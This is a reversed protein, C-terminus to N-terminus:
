GRVSENTENREKSERDIKLPDTKHTGFQVDRIEGWEFRLSKEADLSNGPARYLLTIGKDDGEVLRGLYEDGNNLILRTRDNSRKGKLSIIGIFKRQIKYAGYPTQILIYSKKIRWIRGSLRDGNKLKLVDQAPLPRGAFLSLTLVTAIFIFYRMTSIM